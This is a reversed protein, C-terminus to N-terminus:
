KAESNTTPKSKTSVKPYPGKSLYEAIAKLQPDSVEGRTLAPM